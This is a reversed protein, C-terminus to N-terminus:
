LSNVVLVISNRKRDSMKRLMIYNKKGQININIIHKLPIWKRVWVWSLHRHLSSELQFSKSDWRWAYRHFNIEGGRNLRFRVILLGGLCDWSWDWNVIHIPIIEGWWENQLHIFYKKYKNELVFIGLILM